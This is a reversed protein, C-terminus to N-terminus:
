SSEGIIYIEKNYKYLNTAQFKAETVERPHKHWKGKNKLKMKTVENNYFKFCLQEIEAAIDIFDQKVVVGVKRLKNDDLELGEIVNNLNVLYDQM